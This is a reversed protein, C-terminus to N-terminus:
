TENIDRVIIAKENKNNEVHKLLEPDNEAMAILSLHEQTINVDDDPITDSQYTNRGAKCFVRFNMIWNINLAGGWIRTTM